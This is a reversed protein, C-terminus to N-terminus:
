SIRYNRIREVLERIESAPVSVKMFKQYAKHANRILEDYTIIRISLARLSAEDASRDAVVDWGVPLRGVICVAQVVAGRSENMQELRSRVAGIYRKVQEEIETKRLRRNARKLEIILHASTVRRYRICIDPRINKGTERGDVVEKISREMVADVDEQIRKEMDAYETAREWAPDLLWLHDFLYRQLVRERADADIQERLRNIVDLRAHVIESYRAAEIGDIDKLYDLFRRLGAEDSCDIQNLEEIANRLKLTEFALVGDAYFGQKYADDVGAKDIAGFIKRAFPKLSAPTLSEYWDKIHPNSSIAHELGTREKLENTKTWIRRLEFELFKKVALYRPDEESIRQRSSTAIDERHDEDLFDARIEGFIYKTFMGGLRYEQLIDEQAVKGRVVITIKNLNDDGDGDLDNSRRAMAIWGEIQYEGEKSAVGDVSFQSPRKFAKREGSPAEDLQPCLSSYDHKGYQFLFRAKHFYDRDAFTVETGDIRVVFDDDGKLLGVGFRRAIRKRLGSISAQTLREKRLDSIEIITGHDEIKEDTVVRAPSYRNVKSPDESQITARIEAADMVFAELKKGRARSHVTFRNAISFLSLKGIGKRGMPKRGRKTHTRGDGRRQYGVYLYKGNIDELTMGEGDDTIRIRKKTTDFEVDVTRADADWANAIVEALVSPTNSYLNLGLHNLVNLSISMRYPSDDM